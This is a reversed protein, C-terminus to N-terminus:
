GGWRCHVCVRPGHGFMKMWGFPVLIVVSTKQRWLQLVRGCWCAVGWALSWPRGPGHLYEGPSSPAPPSTSETMEGAVGRTVWGQGVDPLRPRSNGKTGEERVLRHTSLGVTVV